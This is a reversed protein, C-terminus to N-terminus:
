SRTTADEVETGEHLGFGGVSHTDSAADSFQIPQKTDVFPTTFTAKTNLYAYTVFGVTGGFDPSPVGPFQRSMDERITGIIGDEIRGAAAYYSGPPLAAETVPSRNLRDAAPQANTVRLSAGIVDDRAQNWAIQFTACWVANGSEALPTDLTPVIVTHALQSSSVVPVVRPHYDSHQRAERM